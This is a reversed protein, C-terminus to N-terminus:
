INGGDKFKIFQVSQGVNSIAPSLKLWPMKQLLAVAAPNIAKQEQLMSFNKGYRANVKAVGKNTEEASTRNVAAKNLTIPKAEPTTIFMGKGEKELKSFYNLVLDYSDLSLPYDDTFSIVQGHPAEQFKQDMYAIARRNTGVTEGNVNMDMHTVDQVKNNANGSTGKGNKDVKLQIPHSEVWERNYIPADGFDEVSFLKREKLSSLKPKQLKKILKIM